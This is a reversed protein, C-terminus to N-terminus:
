RAREGAERLWGAVEDDLASLDVIELHHMWHRTAPHAVEKFRPSRDHRGLAISLVVEADPHRLYQGPLWLYAFGHRLRFAVQSTGVRVEVPGLPRVTDSVWRYVALGLPHGAFFEEPTRDPGTM